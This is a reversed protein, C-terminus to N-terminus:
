EGAAARIERNLWVGSVLSERYEPPANEELRRLLDRATQLDEERGEAQWLRYRAEMRSNVPAVAGRTEIEKRARGAMGPSLVALLAAAPVIVMPSAAEEGMTLATELSARAQRPNKGRYHLRGLGFLVRAAGVKAGARRHIELAERYHAEAEGERAEEAVAGLLELAEAVGRHHGVRRLTALGETIEGRAEENRGLERHVLGCNLLAISRDVPLGLENWLDRSTEVVELADALLGLSLYLGGLNGLAMAEGRRYGIQRSLTRQAELHERAEDFRGDLNLVQGLNGAATLEARRDGVERFTALCEKFSEISQRSEGTM